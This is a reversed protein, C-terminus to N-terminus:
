LLGGKKLVFHNATADGIAAINGDRIGVTSVINSNSDLTRINANTFVIDM